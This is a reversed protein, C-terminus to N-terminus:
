YDTKINKDFPIKFQYMVDSDTSDDLVDLGYKIKKPDDMVYTGFMRDWLSFINGFNTDTWPREFHHHFKHMNPTVFVLGLTNDIWKPTTINAHSFYTFFVTLFRYILYYSIPAGIVIIAGLAFTERLIYDGPHHRTGSTVDVKTDSHHIMHFKWMWKVRHLLYHILYQAVLDLIMVAIVLEAWIPLDVMNLLGIHNEGIWSFVGLTVVGFAINIVLTISLFIFNVKAHGWKKYSHKFLPYYGELLWCFILCCVVWILKQWAPMAEFFLLLSEM